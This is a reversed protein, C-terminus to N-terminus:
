RCVAYAQMLRPTAAALIMDDEQAAACMRGVSWNPLVNMRHGFEELEAITRDPFNGEIMLQGPASRRPYFSSNFHNTFFQPADISEQLNMGHHVHRLFFTLAWQDQQDGGPTGFALYPAGDRYALTPTLTTRPRRRPALSSPLGEDLWFMQARTGLCFGLEPIVPSSQLWGGSPTATVVNGNRDIVDLHCTDGPTREVKLRGAQMRARVQEELHAMTPEGSGDDASPPSGEQRTSASVAAEFGDIVGPRLELSASPGILNRRDANYDDSLLKALPVDAFDPDAYYAERDAYALKACEVITHVFEAGNPDMAALNFGKLLALQQLFVPGQGWPGTKCVQYNEYDYTAPAEYTASWNALDDGTLLGSHADGSSDLFENDRCFRDICEAIPGKYFYAQAAEIQAERDPGAAEGAKVIRQYTEALVPNRFLANAKPLNGGPRYIALSSPWAREFLPTVADILNAVAPLLPYGNAAYSIAPALVQGLTFTGHDRLLACWADFAGPVVAALLGTGPVHDLGLSRYYDITASGPSVGQGCLVNPGGDRVSHFMIPVDGAPGNLHPEVIQLVFGTAVAADFANGGAELISMGTASALWHTSTVAGFTGRLEPRTTFNM